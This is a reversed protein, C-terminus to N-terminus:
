SPAANAGRLRGVLRDVRPGLNALLLARSWYPSGSLPIDKRSRIEELFIEKVFEHLQNPNPLKARDVQLLRGRVIEEAQDLYADLAANKAQAVRTERHAWRFVAGILALILLIGPIRWPSEAQSNWVWLALMVFPLSLCGPQIWRTLAKAREDIQAEKEKEWGETIEARFSVSESETTNFQADDNAPEKARDERPEGQPHEESMAQQMLREPDHEPTVQKLLELVPELEKMLTRALVVPMEISSPYADFAKYLNHWFAWTPGQDRYYDIGSTVVGPDDGYLAVSLRAVADRRAGESAPIRSWAMLFVYRMLVAVEARVIPEADTDSWSGERQQEAIKRMTSLAVAVFNDEHDVIADILPHIEPM